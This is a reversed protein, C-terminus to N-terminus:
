RNARQAGASYPQAQWAFSFASRRRCDIHASRGTCDLSILDQMRKHDPAEQFFQDKAADKKVPQIMSAQSPKSIEQTPKGPARMIPDTGHDHIPRHSKPCYQRHSNKTDDNTCQRREYIFFCVREPQHCIKVCRQAEESSDPFIFIPRNFLM